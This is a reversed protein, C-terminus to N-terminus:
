EMSGPGFIGECPTKARREILKLHVEVDKATVIRGM